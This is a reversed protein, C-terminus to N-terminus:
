EHPSAVLDVVRDNGYGGIIQFRHVARGGGKIRERFGFRNLPNQHFIECRVLAAITRGRGDDRLVDRGILSIAHAHHGDMGAVQCVGIVIMEIRVPGGFFSVHKPVLQVKLGILNQHSAYM